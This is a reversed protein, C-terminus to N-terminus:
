KRRRKNLRKIDLYLGILIGVLILIWAWAPLNLIKRGLTELDVGTGNKEEPFPNPIEYPLLKGVLIYRGNAVNETCTSLLVINDNTTVDSSRKYMACDKLHDLYEIKSGEDNIAPSYIYSDHSNVKLFAFFELGHNKGEFFINGYKHSRFFDKNKFKDLDGFMLHRAMHHGYIITNFDTFDKSNRYDLYISGPASFKGLANRNLYEVNDKKPKILPYDINTGYITIWGFVDPNMRRLKNFSYTDEVLPKYTEYNKPDAEEYLQASNWVGYLSFILLFVLVTIVIFDVVNNLVHIIKKKQLVKEKDKM